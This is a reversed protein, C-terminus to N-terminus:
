VPGVSQGVVSTTSAQGTSLIPSTSQLSGSGGAQLFKGIETYNPVENLTVSVQAQGEQINCQMAQLQMRTRVGFVNVSYRATPVLHDISVPADPVLVANQPISIETRFSGTYLVYQQAASLTNQLTFMNNVNVITQLNLGNLPVRARTINDPGRVLVDNFVKTGDRTLQVPQTFHSQDLFALPQLPDELWFPGLLPIGANVSWFLGMQELEGMTKDLTEVDQTLLINYHFGWPNLRQIPVINPVGQQDLMTKWVELAPISPDVADWAQTLPCRQRALLAAVDVASIQGAFQDTLPTQVPGSWYLVPTSDTSWVDLWHLWPAIPLFEGNRDLLPPTRMTCQSVQHLERGWQLSTYKDPPFEYIPTGDIARVMVVQENTVIPM